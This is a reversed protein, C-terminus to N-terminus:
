EAAVLRGFQNRIDQRSQDHDFEIAVSGEGSRVVRGSMRGLFVTEGMVPRLDTRIAAGSTSVDVVRCRVETGDAFVLNSWPHAPVCREHRRGEEFGLRSRNLIWTLREALKDQRAPTANWTIAFGGSFRRVIRGELRGIEDVYAVVRERSSGQAPAEIAAGGVSMDIVRCTVERRDEFMCRATLALPVRVHRRVDQRALGFSKQVKTAM